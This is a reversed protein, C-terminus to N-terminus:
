EEKPLLQGLRVGAWFIESVDRKWTLDEPFDVHSLDNWMFVREGNYVVEVIPDGQQNTSRKVEVRDYDTTQSKM